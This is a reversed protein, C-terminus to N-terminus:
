GKWGEPEIVPPQPPANGLDALFDGVQQNTPEYKRRFSKASASGLVCYTGAVLDHLAQKRPHIAATVCDILVCAQIALQLTRGDSESFERIIGLGIGIGVLFQVGYGLFLPLSRLFGQGLNIPKGRKDVIRIGLAMKGLTAGRLGEMLPKYLLNPIVLAWAVLEESFGMLLSMLCVLPIMVLGDVIQAAVRIWFGAPPRNGAVPSEDPPADSAVPSQYPNFAPPQDSTSDSSMAHLGSVWSHVELERRCM